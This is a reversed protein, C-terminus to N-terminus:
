LSLDKRDYELNGSRPLETPRRDRERRYSLYRRANLGRRLGSRAPLREKGELDGDPPNALASGPPCGSALWAKGRMFLPRAIARAAGEFTSRRKLSNGHAVILRRWNSNVLPRLREQLKVSFDLLHYEGIGSLEVGAIPEGEKATTGLKGATGTAITTGTKLPILTIASFTLATGKV